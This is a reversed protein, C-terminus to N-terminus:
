SSACHYTSDLSVVKVSNHRCRRDDRSTSPHHSQTTSPEVPCHLHPVWRRERLATHATSGLLFGDAHCLFKLLFIASAFCRNQLQVEVRAQLHLFCPSCTSSGKTPSCWLPSWFSAPCSYSLRSRFVSQVEIVVIYESDPGVNKEGCRNSNM